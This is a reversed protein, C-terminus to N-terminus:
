RVEIDVNRDALVDKKKIYPNKKHYPTQERKLLYPNEERYPNKEKYERWSKFRKKESNMDCLKNQYDGQSLAPVL